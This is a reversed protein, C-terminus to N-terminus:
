GNNVAFKKNFNILWNTHHSSLLLNSQQDLLKKLNRNFSYIAKCYHNIKQTYIVFSLDEYTKLLEFGRTFNENAEKLFRDSKNELLYLSAAKLLLLAGNDPYENLLRVCAGRLHKLNDVKGETIKLYKIILEFSYEKGKETDDRLDNYYKSNFYLDLYERFSEAGEKSGLECASRMAHIAMKRKKAIEEYVFEILFGLCKQIISKGKYNIVEKKMKEARSKSVYLSLYNYLNEIYEEDKKRRIELLTITKSNYDVEYDDIVGLISLRYIAKFTDQEDRIKNFIKSIASTNNKHLVLEQRLQKKYEKQLNSIFDNSSNCYRSAKSILKESIEDNFSESIQKVANNRFGVTIPNLREGIKVLELQKEIGQLTIASDRNKIWEVFSDTEELNELIIEKVSELVKKSEEMTFINNSPVITFKDIVIYGYGRKFSENVYLRTPNDTPWLNFSLNIGLKNLAFETLQNVRADSAFTIEDLLEFLIQKEKIEGKFADNLFSELLENEFEHEAFLVYCIALKGDRGARGAEQYFGEISSPYNFHVTFRINAKDIGMGFAKTAVLLDLENNIFKEQNQESIISENLAEKEDEGSSGMFTGVDIDPFSEQIKAAISKVGFLWDKHPCFILGTNKEDGDISFFIEPNIKPLSQNKNECINFNKDNIELIEQPLERLLEVLQEQKNEGLNVKEKFQDLLKQKVTCQQIKYILEPRDSSDSRVLSDEDLELERQVDSLVDFSATATLGILPIKDEKPNNVKCFRKANKGLRLYSTRFDHGWESVCHAEDIVCYSFTNNHKKYMETLKDRFAKIQLREPSIFAFLINGKAMKSAALEREKASRISSNIYIAADIRQKILGDYQDKMLSKIPDVILTIGPQLLTAIQYTLSKGSGTPLLGVVSKLQLSRNIIEIQGPRFSKKRFISQLLYQLAQIRRLEYIGNDSNEFSIIKPYEILASTKFVRETKISNSSFIQALHKSNCKNNEDLLVVRNIMTIDLLLDLEAEHININRKYESLISNKYLDSANIILEIKPLSRNKGELYFLVEFLKTFDEIALRACPVDRENIGIKWTDDNISLIGSQIYKFLTKHIRAVAFPILSYQSTLLGDDSGWIPEDYNKQITQFYDEELLERLVKLISNINHFDSTRIRLTKMWNAKTLANDRLSDLNKQSPNDHQSGDIEIALGRKGNIEYPFEITFDVNQESFNDISGKLYKEIGEKQNKAFRIISVIDRQTEILQSFYTKTFSPLHKYYFEEEYESGLKEWSVLEKKFNTANKFNPNILHLSRYLLDSLQEDKKVIPFSLAGTTDNINETLKLLKLFRNELFISTFTPLGRSILNNAVCIIPDSIDDIKSLPESSDLEFYSLKNILGEIRNKEYGAELLYSVLGSNIYGAQLQLKSRM